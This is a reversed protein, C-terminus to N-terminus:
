NEPSYDEVEIELFNMTGKVGGQAVWAILPIATWCWKSVGTLNRIKAVPQYMCVFLRCGVFAPLFGITGHVTFILLSLHTNIYLTIM